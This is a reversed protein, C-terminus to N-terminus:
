NCLKGMWGYVIDNRNAYESLARRARWISIILPFLGVRSRQNPKPPPTPTPLTPTPLGWSASSSPTPTPTSSSAFTPAFLWAMSAAFSSAAMLRGSSITSPPSGCPSIPLGWSTSSRSTMPGAGTSSSAFTPASAFSSAAFSSAAMLRGSSITPTSPSPPSGCPSIPLGWSTSSRSTMPGAGTSSSAFTPASLWAKSPPATSRGKSTSPSPPSGGASIPLGWGCSTAMSRGFCSGTGCSRLIGRALSGLVARPEAPQNLAEEEEDLPDRKSERRM